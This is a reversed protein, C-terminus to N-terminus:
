QNQAQRSQNKQHALKLMESLKDIDVPKRLYGFAGLQICQAEDADSGHGTLIIVEIEPRMEKVKRLVELGNIDPMRLDLIMVEPEDDRVLKLASEGDYAVVSGMDRIQLRESLTQVLDREDDVLLVRDPLSFDHKRYIDARHYTQSSKVVVEEVGPVRSAITRLEEELRSLMLVQKHISLTVVSGEAAVDVNHGERILAVEVEAALQFDKVAMQSAETTQVVAKFINEQILAGAQEVSSKNMPIFLDYMKPDWCDKPERHLFEMWAACNEDYSRLKKLAEKESLGGSQTALSLRFNVDGILAVRLVHSITTPILQGTFGDVILNDQALLNALALRLYAVSGEKEHTFKNFVSTKAEFARQIKDAVIGSLAHAASVADADSVVKFGTSDRVDGVVQEANCFTGSFINVVSM